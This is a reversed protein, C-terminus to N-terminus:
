VQWASAMANDAAHMTERTSDVKILAKHFTVGMAHMSERWSRHALLYAEKADGDWTKDLRDVADDLDSLIDRMDQLHTRLRATLAEVESFTMKVHVAMM